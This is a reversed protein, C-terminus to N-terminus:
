AGFFVGTDQNSATDTRTVRIFLTALVLAVQVKTRGHPYQALVTVIKREALGLKTDAPFRISMYYRCGREEEGSTIPPCTPSRPARPENRANAVHLM